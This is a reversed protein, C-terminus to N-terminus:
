SKIKEYVANGNTAEALALAFAEFNEEPMILRLSIDQGFNESEVRAEFLPLLRRIKGDFAYDFIIEAHAPEFKQCLPLEALGLSTTEQYARVLGGVGLKIGGFYRTAVCVLEGVQSHLLISLMPRGASGHPEGDDSSGIRATDGPPGCAFAWCNHTADPFERRIREIFDRATEIDPAHGVSAIFRSHRIVLEARHLGGPPLDPINYRRTNM